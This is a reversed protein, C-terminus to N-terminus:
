LGEDAGAFGDGMNERGSGVRGCIRGLVELSECCGRM